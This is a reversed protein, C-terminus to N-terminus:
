FDFRMGLTLGQFGLNGDNRTFAGPNTNNVFRILRNQDFFVNFEWGFKMGFHYRNRHFMYDWQIGLAAEATPVVNSHNDELDVFTNETVVFKEFQDDSWHGSLLSIAGNGYLSFGKGLGWLSDIGMRLGVGWFDIDLDNKYRDGPAVTGGAYTIKYDQDILLGRVGIFPRLTLWSSTTCTRGLELDVVNVNAHLHAQASSAFTGNSAFAAMWTPFVAGEFRHLSGHAHTHVYTYGIYLDWQDHPVKYGAGLRFGWDWLFHPSRISGDEITTTSKSGIAFDLDDESAKWYLVEADVWLHCSNKVDNPHFMPTSPHPQARQVQDNPEMADAVEDLEKHAYLNQWSLPALTLLFLLRINLKNVMIIGDIYNFTM